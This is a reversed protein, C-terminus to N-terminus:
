KKKKIRKLGITMLKIEEKMLKTEEIHEKIIASLEEKISEATNTLLQYFTTLCFILQTGVM